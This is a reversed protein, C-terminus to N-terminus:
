IYPRWGLTNLIFALDFYELSAYVVEEIPIVKILVKVSATRKSKQTERWIRDRSQFSPVGSLSFWM